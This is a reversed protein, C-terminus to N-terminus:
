FAPEKLLNSLTFGQSMSEGIMFVDYDRVDRAQDMSTFNEQKNLVKFGSFNCILCFSITEVRSNPSVIYLLYGSSEDPGLALFERASIHLESLNGQAERVEM